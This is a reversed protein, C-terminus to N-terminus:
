AAPHELKDDSYARWLRDIAEQQVARFALKPAAPPVSAGPAAPRAPASRPAAAPAAGPTPRAERPPTGHLPAPPQDLDTIRAKALDRISARSDAPAGKAPEEAREAGADSPADCEPAGAGTDTPSADGAPGAGVDAAGEGGEDIGGAIPRLTWGEFEIPDM